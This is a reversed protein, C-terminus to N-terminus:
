RKTQLSIGLVAYKAICSWLLTHVYHVSCVKQLSWGTEFLCGVQKEVSSSILTSAQLIVLVIPNCEFTLSMRVLQLLEKGDTIWREMELMGQMREESVVGVEYGVYAVYHCVPELHVM